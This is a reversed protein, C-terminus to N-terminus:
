TPVVHAAGPATSQGRSRDTGHHHVTNVIDVCTLTGSPDGMEVGQTVVGERLQLDGAGLLRQLSNPPDDGVVDAHRGAPLRRRSGRPRGAVCGVM